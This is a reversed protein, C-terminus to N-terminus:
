ADGAVLTEVQRQWQDTWPMPMHRAGPHFTAYPMYTSGDPKRMVETARM